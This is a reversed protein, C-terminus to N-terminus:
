PFRTSHHSTAEEVQLAPRLAPVAISALLPPVAPYVAALQRGAVVRGPGAGRAPPACPSSSGSASGGGGGAVQLQWPEELRGAASTLSGAGARECAKPQASDGPGKYRAQESAGQATVVPQFVEDGLGLCM